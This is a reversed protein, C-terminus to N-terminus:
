RRGGARRPVCGLAAALNGTGAAAAAAANAACIRVQFAADDAAQQAQRQRVVERAAAIRDAYVTVWAAGQEKAKRLLGHFYAWPDKIGGAALAGRWEDLLRQALNKGLPALTRALYARQDDSLGVPWHLDDRWAVTSGSGEVALRAAPGDGGGEADQQREESLQQGQDPLGQPDLEGGAGCAHPAPYEFTKMGEPVHSPNPHTDTKGSGQHTDAKPTYSGQSYTPKAKSRKAKGADRAGATGGGAKKQVLSGTHALLLRFRLRLKTGIPEVLGVKELQGVRRRLQQETPKCAKVGPRGELETDERLAWWSVAKQPGGVIGTTFDMRRRLAVYLDRALHDVKRMAAWEGDSIAITTM